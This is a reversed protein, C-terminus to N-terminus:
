IPHPICGQSVECQALMKRLPTHLAKYVEVEKWLVSFAGTAVKHCLWSPGQFSVGRLFCLVVLHVVSSGTGDDAPEELCGFPLM